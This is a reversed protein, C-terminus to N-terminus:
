QVQRQAEYFITDMIELKVMTEYIKMTTERDMQEPVGTLPAIQSHLRAVTSAYM